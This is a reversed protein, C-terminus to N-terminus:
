FLRASLMDQLRIIEPYHRPFFEFGFEYYGTGAYSGSDLLNDSCRTMRGSLDTLGLSDDSSFIEINELMGVTCQVPSISVCRVGGQSIDLVQAMGILNNNDSFLLSEDISSRKFRRRETRENLRSAM